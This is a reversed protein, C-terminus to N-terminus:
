RHNRMEELLYDRFYGVTGDLDLLRRAIENSVVVQALAISESHELDRTIGFAAKLNSVGQAINSCEQGNM